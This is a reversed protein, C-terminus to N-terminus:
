RVTRVTRGHDGCRFALAVLWGAVGTGGIWVLFAATNGLLLCALGPLCAAIGLTWRTTRRSGEGALRAARRRKPDGRCLIALLLASITIAIVGPMTM